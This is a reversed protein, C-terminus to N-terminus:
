NQILRVRADDARVDVKATGNALEFRSRGETEHVRKFNGEATVRRDGHRVDFTGGGNLVTFSVLGDGANIYYRGENAISTAVKINGDSKRVDVHTFKGNTIGVSGDVANVEVKGAGGDMSLDGDEMDFSFENGSCGVLEVDADEVNVAISGDVHHILIEGDDGKIEVSATKPLEIDITHKQNIYGFFLFTSADSLREEVLLDGNLEQVDVYFEDRNNIWLGKGTVERYIKVHANTRNTGKISVNADSCRLTLKGTPSLNFEKNVKYPGAKQQAVATAFILFLSACAIFIKM